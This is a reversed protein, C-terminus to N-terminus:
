GAFDMRVQVAQVVTVRLTERQALDEVVLETGEVTVVTPRTLSCLPRVEPGVLHLLRQLTRRDMEQLAAM